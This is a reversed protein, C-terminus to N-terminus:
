AAEGDRNAVIYNVLEDRLEELTLEGNTPSTAGYMIRSGQPEDLYVSVIVEGGPEMGESISAYMGIDRPIAMVLGRISEILESM